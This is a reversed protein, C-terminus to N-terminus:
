YEDGDEEDVGEAEDGDNDVCDVCIDGYSTSENQRGRSSKCQWEEM